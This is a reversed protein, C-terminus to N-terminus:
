RDAAVIQANQVDKAKDLGSQEIGSETTAM